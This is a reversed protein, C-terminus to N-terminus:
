VAHLLASPLNQSLREGEREVREWGAHAGITPGSKGQETEMPVLSEEGQTAAHASTQASSYDRGGAALM